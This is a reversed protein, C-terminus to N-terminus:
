SGRQAIEDHASPFRDCLDAVKTRTPTRKRSAILVSCSQTILSRRKLFFSL